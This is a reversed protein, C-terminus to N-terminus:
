WQLFINRTFWATSQSSRWQTIWYSKLLLNCKTCTLISVVTIHFKCPLSSQWSLGKDLTEWPTRSVRPTNQINEKFCFVLSPICDLSPWTDHAMLNGPSRILICERIWQRQHQVKSKASKVLEWPVTISNTIYFRWEQWDTLQSTYDWRKGLALIVM